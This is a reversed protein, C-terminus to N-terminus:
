SQIKCISFRYKGNPEPAILEVPLVRIDTQEGFVSKFYDILEKRRGDNYQEGPVIHITLRDLTNQILQMQDLGPIRTLTNEILSIGAVRAGDRKLLFDAIRGSVKEMLPLGRGCGCRRGSPVAMDEIQYRIFPMAYNMLDTVVIRGSRGVPVDAGKEDLFEVLLHEINLHMGNHRECECGILSVEECGYRDTVRTRFVGEIEKREHPLLMMSSSVIGKPRLDNVGLRDLYQALLFISHAHGFILTPRVRRWQRAFELVSRDTVAMTDLYICPNRVWSTAKAKLSRPYIPNGWIAAVPEGVEWGSWRDHRRAVANRLESCPETLYIELAKGTSGGTKFKLLRGPDFGNSIMESVNQRVEQKTLVPLKRIDSPAKLDDPTLGAEDFRARYFPNKAYVFALLKKLRRFQIHRLRAEPLYQTEELVRWYDFRPSNGIRGYVRDLIRRIPPKLRQM